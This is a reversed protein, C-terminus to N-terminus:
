PLATEKDQLFQIMPAYASRLKSDVDSAKALLAAARVAHEGRRAIALAERIGAAPDADMEIARLVCEMFRMLAVADRFRSAADPAICRMVLSDFAPHAAHRFHVVPEVKESLVGLLLDRITSANRMDVGDLHALIPMVGTALEYLVLGLSYVDSAPVEYGDFSEPARYALTGAAPVLGLNTDLPVALGFDAICARVVGKGRSEVLMNSPKIDRHLIPPTMRHAECLGGILQRAIRYAYGLDIVELGGLMQQLTPGNILEMTIYPNGGLSKPLTGCDFVRVISACTLKSLTFAERLGEDRASESRGDKLVKLAQMGMYRHRVAYVDSFQGGGVARDVTLIARIVTGPDLKPATQEM